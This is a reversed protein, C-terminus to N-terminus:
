KGNKYFVAVIDEGFERVTRKIQPKIVGFGNKIQGLLQKKTLFYNSKFKNTGDQESWEGIKQWFGKKPIRTKGPDCVVFINKCNQWCLEIFAKRTAPALHHLIDCAVVIDSSKYNKKDLVNGYFVALKKNKAFNIFRDNTDFGTYKSNTPLYNAIIAPGCGPELVTDNPKALSAMYRYRNAFNKGHYLKLGNIYIWPFRYLLSQSM